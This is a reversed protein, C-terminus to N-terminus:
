DEKCNSGCTYASAYDVGHGAPFEVNHLDRSWRWTYSRWIAEWSRDPMSDAVSEVFDEFAQRADELTDYVQNQDPLYGGSRGSIMHAHM